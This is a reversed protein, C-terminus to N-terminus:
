QTLMQRMRGNVSEANQMM